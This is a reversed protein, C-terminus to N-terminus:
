VGPGGATCTVKAGLGPTPPPNGGITAMRPRSTTPTIPLTIERKCPLYRRCPRAPCAAETGGGGGGAHVPKRPRHIAAPPPPREQLSTAVMEEQEPAGLFASRTQGPPAGQEALPARSPPTPTRVAGRPVVPLRPADCARNARSRQAASLCTGDSASPVDLPPAGREGGPARSPRTYTGLTPERDLIPSPTKFPSPPAFRGRGGQDEDGGRAPHRPSRM